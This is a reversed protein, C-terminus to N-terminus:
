QLCVSKGVCVLLYVSLSMSPGVSGDISNFVLYYLEFVEDPAPIPQTPGLVEADQNKKPTKSELLNM